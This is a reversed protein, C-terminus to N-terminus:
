RAVRGEKPAREHADVIAGTKSRARQRCSGCRGEKYIWALRGDTDLVYVERLGLARSINKHSSCEHRYNSLFQPPFYNPPDEENLKELAAQQEARFARGRIKEAETLAM